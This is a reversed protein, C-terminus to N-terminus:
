IVTNAKNSRQGRTVEAPGCCRGWPHVSDLHHTVMASIHLYLVNKLVPDSLRLSHGCHEFAKTTLLSRGQQKENVIMTQYGFFSTKITLFFVRTLGYSLCCLGLM